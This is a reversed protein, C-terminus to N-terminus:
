RKSSRPQRLARGFAINFARNAKDVKADRAAWRARMRDVVADARERIVADVEDNVREQAM